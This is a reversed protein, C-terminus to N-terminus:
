RGRGEGADGRALALAARLDERVKLSLPAEVFAPDKGTFTAARDALANTIMAGVFADVNALLAAGAAVLADHSNCARVIFAARPGGDEGDDWLEGIVIGSADVLLLVKDDPMLKLPMELEAVPRTRTTMGVGEQNEGIFLHEVAKADPITVATIRADRVAAVHWGYRDALHPDTVWERQPQDRWRLWHTVGEITREILWSTGVESM